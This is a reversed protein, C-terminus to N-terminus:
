ENTRGSPFLPHLLGPHETEMGHIEQADPSRHLVRKATARRDGPEAPAAAAEGYVAEGYAAGYGADETAM